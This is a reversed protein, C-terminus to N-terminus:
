SMMFIKIFQESPSVSKIVEQGLAKEEISEVLSKVVKYNVDAELLSM